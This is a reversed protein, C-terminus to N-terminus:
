PKLLESWRAQTFQTNDQSAIMSIARAKDEGRHVIRRVRSRLWLLGENRLARSATWKLRDRRGGCEHGFEDRQRPTPAMEKVTTKRPKM